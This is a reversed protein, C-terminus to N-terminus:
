SVLRLKDVAVTTHGRGPYVELYSEDTEIKAASKRKSGGFTTEYLKVIRGKAYFPKPADARRRDVLWQVYSGERIEEKFLPVKIPKYFLNELFHTESM